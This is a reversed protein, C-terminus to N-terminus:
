LNANEARGTLKLNTLVENSTNTIVVTYRLIQREYVSDEETLVKGGQSVQTGITFKEVEEQTPMDEAELEKEETVLAIM